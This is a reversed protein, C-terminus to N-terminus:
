NRIREMRSLAARRSRNGLEVIAFVLEGDVHGILYSVNRNRM